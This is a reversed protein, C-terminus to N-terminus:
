SEIKDEMDEDPGFLGDLLNLLPANQSKAICLLSLGLIVCLLAALLLGGLVNWGGAWNQLAASSLWGAGFFVPSLLAAIGLNQVLRSGRSPMKDTEAVRAKLWLLRAEDQETQVGNMQAQLRKVRATLNDMSEQMRQHNTLIEDLLEKEDACAAPQEVAPPIQQSLREHLREGIDEPLDELRLM